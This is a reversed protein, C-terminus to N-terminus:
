SLTVLSVQELIHESLTNFMQIRARAAAHAGPPILPFSDPIAHHYLGNAAFYGCSHSDTQSAMPLVEVGFDETTHQALWWRFASLIEGPITTGFSDGYRIVHEKVDVVIAVRHDKIHVVTLLSQKTKIIDEGLTQLWVYGQDVLYREQDSAASVVKETLVVGEVVLNRVLHPQSVIQARLLELM